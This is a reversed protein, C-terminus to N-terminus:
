RPKLRGGEERRPVGLQYEILDEDHVLSNLSDLMAQRWPTSDPMAWILESVAFGFLEDLRTRRCCSGGTPWRPVSGRLQRSIEGAGACSKSAYGRWAGRLALATCRTCSHPDFDRWPCRAVPTAGVEQARKRRRSGAPMPSMNDGYASAVTICCVRARKAAAASSALQCAQKLRTAFRVV